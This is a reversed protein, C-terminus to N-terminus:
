PNTGARVLLKGGGAIACIAEVTDRFSNPAAQDYTIEMLRTGGDYLANAVKHCQEAGVSCVVAIIKREM